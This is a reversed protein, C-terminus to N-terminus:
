GLEGDTQLLAKRLTAILTAASFPKQIFATGAPLAEGSPNLPYGSMFVVKIGPRVLLITKALEPGRMEPMIVDTLLMDIGVTDEQALQIAKRPTAAEVVIFGEKRLMQGVLNRVIEEDEVLLVTATMVGAAPPPAAESFDPQGADSTAPLYIRFTAGEAPRSFVKIIGGHQEVIGYVISLGLGTGKDKHKTTFFPEFLHETTESDM